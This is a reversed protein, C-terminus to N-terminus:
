QLDANRSPKKRMFFFGAGLIVLFGLVILLDGSDTKRTPAKVMGHKVILTDGDSIGYSSLSKKDDLEKGGRFVIQNLPNLDSISYVKKKIQEATDSPEAAVKIMQGGPIIVMLEMAFGTLATAAYIVGLLCLVTVTRKRTDKM